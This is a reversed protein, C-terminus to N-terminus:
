DVLFMGVLFIGPDKEMTQLSLKGGGGGGGGNSVMVRERKPPFQTLARVLSVTPIM